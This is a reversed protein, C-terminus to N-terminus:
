SASRIDAVLSAVQRFSYAKGLGTHIVADALMRKERDPMQLKLIRQLKEESMHMRQMVRQRQILLPASVVVVMDCREEAGTEFLLPIELVAAQADKRRQQEIFRNEEAVVLPHLIRELMALKSKDKFVINGLAKRDVAGSTVVGPFDCKIAEVADGGKAMLAHVIADANCVRLGLSVFQSAVTSKGVGISGTLGIVIM